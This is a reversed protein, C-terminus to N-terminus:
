DGDFGGDYDADYDLDYDWDASIGDFSVDLDSADTVDAPDGNINYEYDIGGERSRDSGSNDTDYGTDHDRYEQTDDDNEQENKEPAAEDTKHHVPNGNGLLPSGPPAVM